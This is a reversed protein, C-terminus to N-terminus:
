LLKLNGTVQNILRSDAPGIGCVTLSGAAIQTLGADAVLYNPLGLENAKHHVQILENDDNVKVCIKKQGEWKYKEILKSWYDCGDSMRKCRGYSGLTAHGCQAGMKGKTMKLNNNVVLVM